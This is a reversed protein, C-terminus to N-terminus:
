KPEFRYHGTIPYDFLMDELVVGGGINHVIMPRRKDTSLDDTVIGIHPLNGPLMWTVIDGPKFNHGESSIPIETGHRQFFVQLNPVRRHDINRDTRVLGWIQKSPYASFHDRMDEHVLVQLDVGLKRYSRIVVDTCVGIDAAVDGNPYSIQYYSGDYRIDYQTRQKAADVLSLMPEAIAPLSVFMSWVLSLKKM